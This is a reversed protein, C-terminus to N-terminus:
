REGEGLSTATEGVLRARVRMGDVPIPVPSVAIWEGPSLGASVILAETTRMLVEVTRFELVADVTEAPEAEAREVIPNAADERPTVLLVENQNRVAARPVVFVGEVERGLVEADVFMGDLLPLRARSLNEYEYPREVRAVVNLTRTREDLRGESRVIRGQWRHMVPGVPLSLSVEPGDAINRPAGDEAAEEFAFPLKLLPVDALEIPLPVEAVDISFLQALPEGAAIVEGADVEYSHVRGDYPARVTTRALDRQARAVAEKAAAVAAQRAAIQPKRAVMAPPEGERGLRRWERVAIGAELEEEELAVEANALVERAQALAQQYDARLVYRDTGVMAALGILAGVVVTAISIQEELIVWVVAFVAMMRVYHLLRKM